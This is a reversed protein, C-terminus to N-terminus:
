KDGKPFCMRLLLGGENRAIISGGHQEVIYKVVYLGVGSGKKNRAEDCRYFREFISDLKDKPVGQGNDTWEMVVGSEEEYIHIKIEVPIVEAYKMSNELLNDFVRRMQEVDM